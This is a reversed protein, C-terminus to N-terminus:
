EGEKQEEAPKPETSLIEESLMGFVKMDFLSGNSYSWRRITGEYKFGLREAYRIASKAFDPLYLNVKKLPIVEVLYRLVDLTFSETGILKKDWFLIHGTASLGPIVSTLYLLGNGDERELWVTDRSSLKNLFVTFNGKQFDDFLGNIASFKEWLELAKQHSLEVLKVGKPMEKTLM